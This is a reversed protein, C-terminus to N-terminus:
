MVRLLAYAISCCHLGGCIDTQNVYCYMCVYVHVKHHINCDDSYNYEIVRKIIQKINPKRQKKAAQMVQGNMMFM